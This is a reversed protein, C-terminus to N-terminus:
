PIHAVHHVAVTPSCSVATCFTKYNVSCRHQSCSMRRTSYKHRTGASNQRASCVPGNQVPSIRGCRISWKIQCYKLSEPLCPTFIPLVNVIIFMSWVTLIFNTKITLLTLPTTMNLLSGLLYTLLLKIQHKKGIKYKVTEPASSSTFSPCITNTKIVAIYNLCSLLPSNSDNNVVTDAGDEVLESCYM